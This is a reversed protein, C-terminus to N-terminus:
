SPGAVGSSDERLGPQVNQALLWAAAGIAWTIFFATLGLWSVVHVGQNKPDTGVWTQPGWVLFAFLTLMATEIWAAMQPFVRFLIALGCAMQGVGTLYGLGERFHMWAPVFGATIKIYVLHSLGVPILALGFLAAAMRVGRDGTINRFISVGELGSMRAFLIWGGAFLMAIEGFGLWVAEMQPAVVLAPIKLCLWAALFAFIARVAFALTPRFLLMFSVVVMFLGCVVALAERGPHFSPVPQWNYAFDQRLVSLTGLGALGIAFLSIGPQERNVMSQGKM